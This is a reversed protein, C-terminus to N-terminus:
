GDADIVELSLDLAPASHTLRGVSIVRAGADVFSRVDELTVGGSVELRSADGLRAVARGVLEPTANDLLIRDAGAGIADELQDLSEVEVEIPVSGRGNAGRVAAAVGGALRVHNDKILVADSLSARHLSGGGAAVAERELQRLGPTTKRTCLIAAPKAAEVFARTLTAIGSLHALFNLAPREARLVTAAPGRIIAIRDGHLVAAGDSVKADFAVETGDDDAALEFVARTIAMGAIVGAAKAVLEARCRTGPALTLETTLDGAPADEALAMRALVSLGQPSDASAM